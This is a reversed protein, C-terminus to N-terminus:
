EPYALNFSLYGIYGGIDDKEIRCDEKAVSVLSNKDQKHRMGFLQAVLKKESLDVFNIGSFISQHLKTLKLISDLFEALLKGPTDQYIEMHIVCDFHNVLPIQGPHLMHAMKTLSDRFLNSLLCSKIVEMKVEKSPLAM